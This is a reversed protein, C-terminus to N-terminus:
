KRRREFIKRYLAGARKAHFVYDMDPGYTVGIELLVENQTFGVAMEQPNGAADEHIPFFQTTETDALVQRMQRPNIGHKLASKRIYVLDM